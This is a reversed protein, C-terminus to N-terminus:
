SALLFRFIFNTIFKLKEFLKTRTAQTLKEDEGSKEKSTRSKINERLTITGWGSPQIGRTQTNEGKKRRGKGERSRSKKRGKYLMCLDDMRKQFGQGGDCTV